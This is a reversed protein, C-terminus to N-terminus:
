WVAGRVLVVALAFLVLALLATVRGMLSAVRRMREADAGAPAAQLLATARPGIVFDHVASLILVLGFVSLKLWMVLGFGRAAFTMDFLQAFGVGRWWLNFSGTILLVVFCTWGVSRFRKGSASMLAAASKRDGRRLIPVVVLVLFVMGGLWTTAALIHLWVSILYAIGM